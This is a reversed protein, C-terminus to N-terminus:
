LIGLTNFDQENNSLLKAALGHIHNKVILNFNVM